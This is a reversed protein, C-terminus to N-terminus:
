DGVGIDQNCSRMMLDMEGHEHQALANCFVEMMEALDKVTFQQSCEQYLIQESKEVIENFQLYLQSHQNKLEEAQRSLTQNTEHSNKFYGYFEELAFYTELQDRLSALLEATERPSPTPTSNIRRSVENLLERFEFDQKIEQLFPVNIAIGASEGGGQRYDKESIWSSM